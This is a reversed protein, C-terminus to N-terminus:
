HLTKYLGILKKEEIAWTCKQIVYEHGNKGMQEAKNRNSLLDNIKESLMEPDMPDVCIGAGSDNAVKEWLPFNSCIFPIGAAMYEYMKIPQSYYYNQIPRLICLGVISKGYLANVGARNLRGVYSINAGPIDMVEHEGAIILKGQVGHMAQIMIDEGRLEDIGGAYCVIAERDTFSTEHFQIDDLRPFNNIDMVRKARGEFKKAIHPTAAVVADIRKVVYTEYSKYIKSVLLRLPKWIWTKDIIQAPVDEHTDFLVIKGKKKLKLAYPLLEPDHIHYIDANVELAKNFTKRGGNTMRKIRSDPMDGFGVLHVGNKDYTDGREVLYVDYGNQALSVCEKLFIRDDETDHASTLHCVKIM